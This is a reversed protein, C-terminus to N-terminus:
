HFLTWAVCAGSTIVTGIVAGSIHNSFSNDKCIPCPPAAKCILLDTESKKLALKLASILEQQSKVEQEAAALDVELKKYRATSLWVGAIEVRCGSPLRTRDGYDPRDPCPMEVISGDTNVWVGTSGAFLLPALLIYSIKFM